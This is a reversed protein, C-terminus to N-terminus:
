MFDKDMYAKMRPEILLVLRNIDMNNKVIESAHIYLLVDSTLENKLQEYLLRNIEKNKAYFKSYRYLDNDIGFKGLFVLSIFNSKRM